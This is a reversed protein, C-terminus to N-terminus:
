FHNRSSRIQTPMAELKSLKQRQARQKRQVFCCTSCVWVVGRNVYLPRPNSRPTIVWMEKIVATTLGLMLNHIEQVLQNWHLRLATRLM